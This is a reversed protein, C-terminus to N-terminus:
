DECAIEVYCVILNGKGFDAIPETSRDGVVEKAELPDEAFVENPEISPGVSFESPYSKSSLWVRACNSSKSSRRFSPTDM